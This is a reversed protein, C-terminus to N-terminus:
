KLNDTFVSFDGRAAAFQLISRWVNGKAVSADVEARNLVAFTQTLELITSLGADYRAKAQDFADQAAQLQIPAQRAVDLAAQYRFRARELEGAVKLNEENYREEAMKAVSRQGRAENGTKFLSTVNWITSFGIMYNYARFPVGAGFSSNYIFDGNDKLKDSIGSGRAWGAALLSISPLERRRIAKVRTQNLDAISKYFLLRPNNAFDRHTEIQQPTQKLFVTTDLLFDNGGTIGVLEKLQVHQEKALRRAELLSLIGKSYEANVLSSDVGPRLGSATYATTVEKLAKVRALNSQQSKVMDDLMLALLYADSVKIQHQFLENQYDAEATTLGARAVDVAAKYKGFSFLKWNVLGTAFSTWVADQTYGNVKIGGSTPIATGENPFFTGRVQNSTADTVQGQVIFNPLYNNQMSRLEYTAAEKGAVKSKISPYNQKALDLATNLDVIGEERHSQGIALFPIMLGLGFAVIYHAKGAM